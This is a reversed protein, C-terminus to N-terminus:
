YERLFRRIETLNISDKCYNAIRQTNGAASTKRAVTSGDVNIFLEYSRSDSVKSWVREGAPTLKYQWDLDNGDIGALDNIVHIAATYREDINTHMCKRVVNILRRPIHEPFIDRNPFDGNRVDFIFRDRDFNGQVDYANFQHYFEDNGVCMRYLTLGSQYIDFATTYEDGNAFAEPPAMKGYMRDQGAYGNIATQKTLGFDSLLAEGQNSILINDPKIDFHILQKSHINHLGSMFQSAYRVIERVTLFRQNMLENLSGNSYYPMALYINDNDECAYHIPVVNPHSSLYLVGSEEYYEDTGPLSTKPIQKIVLEADLQPDHSKFVQSNKGEHGIEEQLDFLLEARSYPKLM